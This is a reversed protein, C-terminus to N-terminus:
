SVLQIYSAPANQAAITMININVANCFGIFLMLFYQTPAYSLIRVTEYPYIEKNDINIWYEILVWLTLSVTSFWAYHFIVISFHMSKMRRTLVTVLSYSIACVLATLLGLYFRHQDSKEICDGIKSLSLVVIGSFSGVM